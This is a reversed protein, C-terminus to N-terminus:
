FPIDDDQGGYDGGGGGSYGGGGGGGGGGSYGGGGGGGGSYGGGGGGGGSYGGGGGDGGERSGLFRIEHAIVETSWRDNGDKDQWKSTQIRGEVYIQKGKRCFRAVNEATRGFCVVRHWETHDSWNGDRDKRRESTALRLNAIMTGNQATRTEPDAGLNGVLIVKNVTM